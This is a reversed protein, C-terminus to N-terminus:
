IELVRLGPIDAFDKTNRTLLPYGHQIAQSALWLDQVRPRHKKGVSKLYAALSGFVEGTAEDIKLSPKVRLRALSALRQQKINEDSACEAGFKLEAVTVPSLYVPEDGTIAAVAEPTLLGHEM